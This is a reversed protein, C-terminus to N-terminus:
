GLILIALAGAVLLSGILDVVGGKKVRVLAVFVGLLLQVQTAKRILFANALQGVSQLGDVALLYFFQGFVLWSLGLLLFSFLLVSALKGFMWRRDDVRVMVKFCMYSSLLLYVPLIGLLLADSEWRIERAVPWIGLTLSIASVVLALGWCLKNSSLCVM